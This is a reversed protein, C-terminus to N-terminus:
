GNGDLDEKMGRGVPEPNQQAVAINVGPRSTCASHDPDRAAQGRGCGDVGQDPIVRTRYVSTPFGQSWLYRSFGAERVLPAHRELLRTGHGLAGAEHFFRSEDDGGSTRSGFTVSHRSPSSAQLGPRKLWRDDLNDVTGGQNCLRRGNSSSRRARRRGWLRGM